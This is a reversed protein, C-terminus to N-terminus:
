DAESLIMAEVEQKAQELDTTAQSYLQKAKNRITQIHDAIGQKKEPPPLVIPISFLAPYDLAPRTGGTARKSAIKEICNLNLFSALQKSIEASGTKIVVIHQNINGEFGPPAVSAVAMRGVGTIKVLLDGEYVRSRKLLGNHTEKTIYVINELNLQGTTSLNQVRVFPIGNDKTTYHIDSDSKAPTAGGAHSLAYKRLSGSAKRKFLNDLKVLFPTSFFPDFREGSVESFKRFFMREQITNGGEEPLEIGLEQLLYDDISDLLRQAETEKEKKAAYAADMKSIIMSQVSLSLDPILIKKINEYSIIARATDRKERRIFSAGLKTALFIACFKSFNYNNTRALIINDSIAFSGIDNFSVDGVNVGIRTFLLDGIRSIRVKKDDTFTTNEIELWIPRINQTRIFKTGSIPNQNNNYGTQLSILKERFKFHPLASVKTIEKLIDPKYYECDLRENLESRKLLFVKNPDITDSFQFSM